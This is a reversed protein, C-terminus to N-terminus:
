SGVKQDDREARVSSSRLPPLLAKVPVIGAEHHPLPVSKAFPPPYCSPLVNPFLPLSALSSPLCLTPSLAKMGITGAEHHPPPPLCFAAPDCKDVADWGMSGM